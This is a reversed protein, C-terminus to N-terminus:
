IGELSEVWNGIQRGRAIIACKVCHVNCYYAFLPLLFHGQILLGKYGCIFSRLKKANLAAEQKGQCAPTNSSRIREACATDALNPYEPERFECISDVRLPIMQDM